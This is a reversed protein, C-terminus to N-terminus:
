LIFAPDTTYRCAQLPECNKLMQSSQAVLVRLSGGHAARAREIVAALLASKGAGLILRPTPERGIGCPHGGAHRAFGEAGAARRGSAQAHTGCPAVANLAREDPM